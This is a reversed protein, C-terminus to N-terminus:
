TKSYRYHKKWDYVRHLYLKPLLAEFRAFSIWEQKGGLHQIKVSSGDTSHTGDLYVIITTEVAAPEAPNIVEPTHPIPDESSDEGWNQDKPHLSM